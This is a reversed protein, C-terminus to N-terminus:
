VLTTIKSSLHTLNLKKKKQMTQLIWLILYSLVMISSLTMPFNCYKTNTNKKKKKKKKKLFLSALSM